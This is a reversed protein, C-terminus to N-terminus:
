FSAMKVTIAGIKKLKKRFINFKTGWGIFYRRPKLENWMCKIRNESEEKSKEVRCWTSCNSDRSAFTTHGESCGSKVLEERQARQHREAGNGIWHRVLV